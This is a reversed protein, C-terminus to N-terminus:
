GQQDHEVATLVEELFELRTSGDIRDDPGLGLAVIARAILRLDEHIRDLREVLWREPNGEPHPSQPM